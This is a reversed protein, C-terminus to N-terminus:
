RVGVTTRRRSALAPTEGPLQCGELAAGDIDDLLQWTTGVIQAQSVQRIVVDTPLGHPAGASAGGERFSAWLSAKHLFNCCNCSTIRCESLNGATKTDHDRIGPLSSCDTVIAYLVRRAKCAWLRSSSYMCRTLDSSRSQCGSIVFACLRWQWPLRKKM